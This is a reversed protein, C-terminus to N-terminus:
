TQVDSEVSALKDHLAKGEQLARRLRMLIKGLKNQGQNTQRDVGWYEDGWTNGEILEAQGTALLKARLDGHSVFKIWVIEYMVQDKIDHWDPRLPARRGLKKAEGPSQASRILSRWVSDTTKMAQFAHESTPYEHDGYWIRAKHFNSLFGYDGRFSDIAAVQEAGCVVCHAEAFDTCEHETM